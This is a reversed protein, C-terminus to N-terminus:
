PCVSLCGLSLGAGGAMGPRVKLQMKEGQLLECDKTKSYTGSSGIASLTTNNFMGTAPDLAFQKWLVHDM